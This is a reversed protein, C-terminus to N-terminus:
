LGRVVDKIDKYNVELLIQKDDDALSITTFLGTREARITINKLEIGIKTAIMGKVTKSKM